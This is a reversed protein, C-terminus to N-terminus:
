FPIEDDLDGGAPEWSPMDGASAALPTPPPPPMPTSGPLLVNTLTPPPPLPPTQATNGTVVLPAQVTKWEVLRWGETRSSELLKSRSLTSALNNAPNEGKIVTGLKALEDVLQRTHAPRQLARLIEIVQETVNLKADLSKEADVEQAADYVKAMELYHELKLARNRADTLQAELRTVELRTKNLDKTAREVSV